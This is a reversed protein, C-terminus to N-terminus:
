QWGDTGFSDVNERTVLNVPVSCSTEHAQGKIILYMQQVAIMGIKSPFQAATAAMNDEKIMAKAEPSGDVGYVLFKSLLNHDKLAAMAGLASPDNLAMVVDADPAQPLLKEMVPMANELQGICDGRAVVRFTSHGKITDEFGRIRDVASQAGKHELLIINASKRNKMLHRACLVGASYNDSVVTCTALSSDSVPTDVVIVPIGARKAEMLVPQLPDVEVPNLFIAHVRMKIFDRIQQIQKNVDLAPDRTVLTDGEAEVESRIENDIIEYFPNNMTMYTAGFKRSQKQTSVRESSHIFIGITGLLLVFVLLASIAVLKKEFFRHM